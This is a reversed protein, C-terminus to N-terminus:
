FKARVDGGGDAGQWWAKEKSSARSHGFGHSERAQQWVRVSESMIIIEYFFFLFLPMLVCIKKLRQEAILCKLKSQGHGYMENLLDSVIVNNGKSVSLTDMLLLVWLLSVCCGYFHAAVESFFVTCTMWNEDWSTLVISCDLQSAEHRNIHQINNFTLVRLWFADDRWFLVLTQCM